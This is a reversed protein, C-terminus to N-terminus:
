KITELFGFEKAQDATCIMNMGPKNVSFDNGLEKATKGKAVYSKDEMNYAYIMDGEKELNVYITRSEYDEEEEDYMKSFKYDEYANYMWM